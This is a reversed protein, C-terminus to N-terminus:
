SVTRIRQLVPTHCYSNGPCSLQCGSLLNVSSMTGIKLYKVKISLSITNMVLHSTKESMNPHVEAGKDAEQLWLTLDAKDEKSNLMSSTVTLEMWKLRFISYAVGFRIRDNEELVRPKKLANSKSLAGPTAALRQSEALIDENMYTGLKAGTNELVVKPRSSDESQFVTIKAHDKSVSTDWPASIDGAVRGVTYSRGPM